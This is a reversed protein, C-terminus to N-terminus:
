ILQIQTAKKREEELEYWTRTQETMDLNRWSGPQRAIYGKKELGGLTTYVRTQTVNFREALHRQTPYMRERESYEILYRLIEAQKESLPPLVLNGSLLTRPANSDTAMSIRSRM